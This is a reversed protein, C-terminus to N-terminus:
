PCRSVPLVGVKRVRVKVRCAVVHRLPRRVIVGRTQTVGVCVRFAVVVLFHVEAFYLTKGLVLTALVDVPSVLLTFLHPAAVGM